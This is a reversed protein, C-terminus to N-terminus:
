ERDEGKSPLEDLASQLEDLYSALRDLRDDWERRLAQIWRDASALAKPYIRCTRVRGTKESRVLGSAELVALHQM